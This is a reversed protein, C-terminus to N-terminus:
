GNKKGMKAKRAEMHEIEKYKLYDDYQKLTFHVKKGQVNASVTLESEEIFRILKEVTEELRRVCEEVDGESLAEALLDTMPTHKGEHIVFNPMGQENFLRKIDDESPINM